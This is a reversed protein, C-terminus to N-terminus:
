AVDITVEAKISTKFELKGAMYRKLFLSSLRQPVLIPEKAAYLHHRFHLGKPVNLHMSRQWLWVAPLMSGKPAELSHM